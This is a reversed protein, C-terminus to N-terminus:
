VFTQTGCIAQYCHLAAVVATKAIILILVGVLGNELEDVVQSSQKRM